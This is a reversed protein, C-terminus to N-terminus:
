KWHEPHKHHPKFEYKVNEVYGISKMHWCRSYIREDKPQSHNFIHSFYSSMNLNISDFLYKVISKSWFLRFVKSKGHWFHYWGCESTQSDFQSSFGHHSIQFQTRFYVKLRIMNNISRPPIKLIPLTFHTGVTILNEWKALSNSSIFSELCIREILCLTLNQTKLHSFRTEIYCNLKWLLSSSSIHFTKSLTSIKKWTHLWSKLNIELNM